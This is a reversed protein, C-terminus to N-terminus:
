PQGRLLSRKTEKLTRIEKDLTDGRTIKLSAGGRLIPDKQHRLITEEHDGRRLPLNQSSQPKDEDTNLDLEGSVPGGEQQPPLIQLNKARVYGAQQMEVLLAYDGELDCYGDLSAHITDNEIKTIELNETTRYLSIFPLEEQGGKLNKGKIKLTCSSLDAKIDEIHAKQHPIPQTDQNSITNSFGGSSALLGFLALAQKKSVM